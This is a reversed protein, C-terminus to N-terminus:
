DVGKWNEPQISFPFYKHSYKELSGDKIMEALAKDIRKLLEDNGKRLGVGVGPGFYEVEDIAPSVFEFGAGDDKSLFDLYAKMPNTIAIDIRGNQLDLLMSQNSDYFVAEAKPLKAELWKSYTSAREVGFRLGDFAEPIPKGADDFLKLKADKPGLIRGISVRYPISFDIKQKREETISLSAVILDFKSALLAPIMGDWEQCVYELDAGIREAIGQAVDVDYGAMQGDPTRYNFPAYTCEMGVRLTEAHAPLAATLGLLAAALLGTRFIM